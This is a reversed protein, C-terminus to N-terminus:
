EEQGQESSIDVSCNSFLCCNPRNYQEVNGSQFHIKFKLVPVFFLPTMRSVDDLTRRVTQAPAPVAGYIFCELEM